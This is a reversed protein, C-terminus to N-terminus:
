PVVNDMHVHITPTAAFMCLMGDGNLDTKLGVHTHEMDDHQMVTMLTFGPPCEGVPMSGSAQTTNVTAASISLALLLAIFLTFITKRM